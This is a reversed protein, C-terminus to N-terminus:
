DSLNSEKYVLVMELKQKKKSMVFSVLADNDNTASVAKQLIDSFEPTVNIEVEYPPINKMTPVGDIADKRGAVFNIQVKGDDAIIQRVRTKDNEDVDVSVSINDSLSTLM